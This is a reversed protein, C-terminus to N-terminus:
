YNESLQLLFPFNRRDIHNAQLVSDLWKLEALSLEHIQELINYTESIFYRAVERNSFVPPAESIYENELLTDLAEICFDEAFGFHRGIILAMKREYNCIAGDKRILTLFGRLFESKDKYTLEM